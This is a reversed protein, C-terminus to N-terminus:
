FAFCLKRKIHVSIFILFLLLQRIQLAVCHERLDECVVFKSGVERGSGTSILPFAGAELCLSLSLTDLKGTFEKWYVGFRLRAISNNTQRKCQCLSKSQSRQVPWTCDHSQSKNGTPLLNERAPTPWLAGDTSCPQGDFPKRLNRLISPAVVPGALWKWRVLQRPSLQWNVPILFLQQISICHLTKWAPWNSCRSFRWNWNFRFATAGHVRGDLTNRQAVTNLIWSWLNCFTFESVHFTSQLLVKIQKCETFFVLWSFSSYNRLFSSLTGDM